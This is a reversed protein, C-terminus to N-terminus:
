LEHYVAPVDGVLQKIGVVLDALYLDAFLCFFVEILVLGRCGAGLADKSMLYESDVVAQGDAVVGFDVHMLEGICEMPVGAPSVADVDGGFNERRFVDVIAV